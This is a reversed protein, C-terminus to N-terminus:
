SEMFGGIKGKCDKWCASRTIGNRELELKWPSTVAHRGILQSQTIVEATKLFEEWKEREALDEPTFQAIALSNFILLALFGFFLDIRTRM